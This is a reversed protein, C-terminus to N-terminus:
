FPRRSEPVIRLRIQRYIRTTKGHMTARDPEFAHRSMHGGFSKSSGPPEGNEEAFQKWSAYLLAAAELERPGQECCEEIWRGFTDQEEFYTRTAEHVTQPRILGNKQWDLCGEIMWRLIAPYEGALKEELQRDPAAPKHIFPIIHFRRRTADDVNRLDPKHNGIVVLKFQPLYEFFDQRMFRAAVRDGGTMAKIRSEAWARGEETESATVLRAGQLMALETPHKDSKSATFTDM